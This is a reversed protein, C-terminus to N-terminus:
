TRAASLRRQTTLQLLNSLFYHGAQLLIKTIQVKRDDIELQKM